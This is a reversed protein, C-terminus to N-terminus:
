WICHEIDRVLQRIAARAAILSPFDMSMMETLAVVGDPGLADALADTVAHWPDRSGNPKTETSSSM